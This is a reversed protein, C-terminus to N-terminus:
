AQRDRPRKSCQERTGTKEDTFVIALNYKLYLKRATFRARMEVLVQFTLRPLRFLLFSVSNKIVIIYLILASLSALRMDFPCGVEM